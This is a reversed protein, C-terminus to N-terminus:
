CCGFHPQQNVSICFFFLCLSNSQPEVCYFPVCICALREVSIKILPHLCLCSSNLCSFDCQGEAIDKNMRITHQYVSGDFRKRTDTHKYGMM